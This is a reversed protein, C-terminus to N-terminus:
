RMTKSIFRSFIDWYNVVTIDFSISLKTMGDPNKLTQVLLPLNIYCSTTVICAIEREREWYSICYFYRNLTANLLFSSLIHLIRIHPKNRGQSSHPLMCSICATFHNWPSAAGCEPFVELPSYVREAKIIHCLAIDSIFCVDGKNWHKYYYYVFRNM